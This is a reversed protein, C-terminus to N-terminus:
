MLFQETIVILGIRSLSKLFGTLVRKSIKKEQRTNQM